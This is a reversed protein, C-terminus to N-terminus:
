LTALATAPLSTTLSRCRKRSPRVSPSPTLYSSVWCKRRPLPGSPRHLTGSSSSSSLESSSSSFESSSPSFESSTTPTYREMSCHISSHSTVFYALPPSDEERQALPASVIQAHLPQAAESADDKSSEDSEAKFSGFKTDPRPHYNPSSPPYVPSAPVYDLSLSAESPEAEPDSEEAESDSLIVYASSGISEGITDFSIYITSLSM